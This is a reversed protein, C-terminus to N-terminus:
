QRQKRRIDDIQDDGIRRLMKSFHQAQARQHRQIHYLIDRGMIEVNAMQTDGRAHEFFVQPGGESAAKLVERHM